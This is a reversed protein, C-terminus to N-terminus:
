DAKKEFSPQARLFVYVRVDMEPQLAHDTKVRVTDNYSGAETRLNEVLLTYAPKGDQVAATAKVRLTGGVAYAELIKFPYKAEPVISVSGQLAEGSAGRLSLVRPTVAAFRDVPGAVTLHVVPEKPDNSMVEASKELRRGGYGATDM